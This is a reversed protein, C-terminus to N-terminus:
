YEKLIEENLESLIKNARNKSINRVVCSGIFRKTTDFVGYKGVGLKTIFYRKYIKASFQSNNVNRYAYFKGKKAASIANDKNTAKVTQVQNSVKLSVTYLKNKM